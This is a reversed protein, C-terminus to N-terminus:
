KTCIVVWSYNRRHHIETTFAVSNMLAIIDNKTYYKAYRPNLQDYIVLKRKDYPLKDIVSLLYNKLPLDYPLIKCIKLYVSLLFNLMNSVIQKVCAPLYKVIARLPLLLMLFWRNNEKGYLWIIFKGGPKLANYVAQIVPAPEPIHHIVGISIAIDLEENIPLKDGTINLFKTKYRYQELKEKAVQIAKSPELVVVEKAGADLLSLSFRGTGAGIDAVKKNVFETLPFPAIFDSFLELSGFFGSADQFKTWQEGFNKITIHDTM